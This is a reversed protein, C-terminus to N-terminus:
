VALPWSPHPRKSSTNYTIRQTSSQIRSAAFPPPRSPPHELHELHPLRRLHHVARQKTHQLGHLTLALLSSSFPLRSSSLPCSSSHHNILLQIAPPIKIMFPCAPFQIDPPLKIRLRIALLLKTHYDIFKRSRYKSTECTTVM